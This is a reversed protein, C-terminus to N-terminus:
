VLLFAMKKDEFGEQKGAISFPTCNHAIINEIIYSNDTEVEFNYVFENEILTKRTYKQTYSNKSYTNRHTVVTEYGYTILRM